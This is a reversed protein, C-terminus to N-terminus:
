AAPTPEWAEVAAAARPVMAGMLLMRNGDIMERRLEAADGAMAWEYMMFTNLRTIHEALAEVDIGRRVMECRTMARLYASKIASGHRQLTALSSTNAVASCVMARLFGPTAVACQHYMLALDLFLFPGSSFTELARWVATTHDNFAAILLETRRGFSNRLTQVTVGCEQAVRQLTFDEPAEALLRRVVALITARRLRLRYASSGRGEAGGALLPTFPNPVVAPDFSTQM